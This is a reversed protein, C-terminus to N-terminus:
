PQRTNARPIRKVESEKDKRDEVSTPTVSVTSLVDSESSEKAQEPPGASDPVPKVAPEDFSSSSVVFVGYALCTFALLFM